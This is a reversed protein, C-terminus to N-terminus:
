RSARWATSSFFTVRPRGPSIKPQVQTSIRLQRDEQTSQHSPLRRGRRERHWRGSRSRWRGVPLAETGRMVCRDIRLKRRRGDSSSAHLIPMRVGDHQEPEVGISGVLRADQPAQPVLDRQDCISQPRRRDLDVSSREVQRTGVGNACEECVELHGLRCVVDHPLRKLLDVRVHAILQSLQRDGPRHSLTATGNWAPHHDRALVHAGPHEEALLIGPDKPHRIERRQCAGKRPDGVGDLVQVSRGALARVLDQLPRPDKGVQLRDPGVRARAGAGVTTCCPMQCEPIPRRAPPSLGDVPEDRLAGSPLLTTM